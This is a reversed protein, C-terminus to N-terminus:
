FSNDLLSRLSARISLKRLIIFAKIRGWSILSDHWINEVYRKWFIVDSIPCSAKYPFISIKERSYPSKALYSTRAFYSLTFLHFLFTSMKLLFIRIKGILICICQNQTITRLGALKCSYSVTDLPYFHWMINQSLKYSYLNKM